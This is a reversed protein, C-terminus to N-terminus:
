SPPKTLIKIGEVKGVNDGIENSHLVLLGGKGILIWNEFWDISEKDNGHIVEDDYTLKIKMNITRM